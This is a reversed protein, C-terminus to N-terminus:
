RTVGRVLEVVVTETTLVKATGSSLRIDLEAVGVPWESTDAVFLNITRTASDAWTASVEAILRGARDRIQSKLAWGSFYGDPFGEPIDVFYEFSSGIKHKM